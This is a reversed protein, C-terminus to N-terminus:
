ATHKTQKMLCGAKIKKFRWCDLWSLLDDLCRLKRLRAVGARADRRFGGHWRARWGWCGILAVKRWLSPDAQTCLVVISLITAFLIQIYFHALAAPPLDDETVQGNSVDKVLNCLLSSEVRWHKHLGVGKKLFNVYPVQEKNRTEGSALQVFTPLIQPGWWACVRVLSRECSGGPMMTLFFQTVQWCFRNEMDVYAANPCLTEPVGCTWFGSPWANCVNKYKWCALREWARVACNGIKVCLMGLGQNLANCTPM